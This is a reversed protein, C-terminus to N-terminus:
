QNKWRIEDEMNRMFERLVASNIVRGMPSREGNVIVYPTVRADNYGNRRYTEEVSSYSGGYRKIQDDTLVYSEGNLIIRNDFKVNAYKRQYDSAIQSYPINDSYLRNGDIDIYSPTIQMRRFRPNSAVFSPIKRLDEINRGAEFLDLLEQRPPNGTLGSYARLAADGFNVAQLFRERGQALSEGPLRFRSYMENIETNVSKSIEQSVADAPYNPYYPIGKRDIFRNILNVRFERGLAKLTQADATNDMTISDPDGEITGVSFMTLPTKGRSIVGGRKRVIRKDLDYFRFEGYRYADFKWGKNPKDMTTILDIPVYLHGRVTRKTIIDGNRFSAVHRGANMLHKYDGEAIIENMYKRADFTIYGEGLLLAKKAGYDYQFRGVIKDSVERSPVSPEIPNETLSERLRDIDINGIDGLLLDNKLNYYTAVITGLNEFANGVKESITGTLEIRTLGKGNNHIYAQFEWDPHNGSTLARIKANDVLSYGENDIKFIMEKDGFFKEYFIQQGFYERMVVGNKTTLTFDAGVELEGGKGYLLNIKELEGGVYKGENDVLFGDRNIEGTKTIIKRIDGKLQSDYERIFYGEKGNGGEVYEIRNIGIHTNDLDVFTKGNSIKNGDFELEDSYFRKLEKLRVNGKIGAMELRQQINNGVSTTLFTDIFDNGKANAVDKLTKKKDENTLGSFDKWLSIQNETNLSQYDSIKQTIDNKILNYEEDSIYKGNYLVASSVLVIMVIIVFVALVGKKM